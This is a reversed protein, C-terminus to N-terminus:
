TNMSSAHKLEFYFNIKKIVNGIELNLLLFHQWGDSTVEFQVGRQWQALQSGEHSLVVSVITLPIQVLFGLAQSNM